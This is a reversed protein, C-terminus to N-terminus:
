LNIRMAGKYNHPVWILKILKGNKYVRKYREGKKMRSLSSRVPIKSSGSGDMIQKAESKSLHIYGAPKGNSIVTIYREGAKRESAKVIKKNKGMKIYAQSDTGGNLTTVNGNSDTTVSSGDTYSTTSSGDSNTTTTSGDENTTTTGDNSNNTTTTVTEFRVAKIIEEKEGFREILKPNNIIILGDTWKVYLKNTTEPNYDKVTVSDEVINLGETAWLKAKCPNPIRCIKVKNEYQLAMVEGDLPKILDLIMDGYTSSNSTGSSTSDGSSGGSFGELSAGTIQKNKIQQIIQDTTGEWWGVNKSALYKGINPIPSFSPSFNDDHARGLNNRDYAKVQIAGEPKWVFVYVLKAQGLKKQFYNSWYGTQDYMTGACYGGYVCVWVCDSQTCGHKDPFSHNNSGVGCNTATHGLSQLASCIKNIRENDSSKGSINDSNVFFKLGM